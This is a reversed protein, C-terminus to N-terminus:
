AIRLLILKIFRRLFDVEDVDIIEVDILNVDVLKPVTGNKSILSKKNIDSLTLNQKKNSNKTLFNISRKISTTKNLTEFDTYIHINAGM